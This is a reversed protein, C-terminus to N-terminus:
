YVRMTTIEECSVYSSTKDISLDYIPNFGPLETVRVSIESSIGIEKAATLAALARDMDDNFKVGKAELYSLPISKAIETYVGGSILIRRRLSLIMGWESCAKRLAVGIEEPTSYSFRISKRTALVIGNKVTASLVVTCDTAYDEMNPDVYEFSITDTSHAYSRVNSVKLAQKVRIDNINFSKGPFPVVKSDFSDLEKKAKLTQNWACLTLAFEDDKFKLVKLCVVADDKPESYYVYVHRADENEPIRVLKVGYKTKLAKEWLEIDAKVAELGERSWNLLIGYVEETRVNFVLSAKTLRMVPKKLVVDACGCDNWEPTKMGFKFGFLGDFKNIPITSHREGTALCLMVQFFIMIIVLLRM